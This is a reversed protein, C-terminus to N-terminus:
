PIQIFKIDEVNGMNNFINYLYRLSQMFIGDNTSLMIQKVM